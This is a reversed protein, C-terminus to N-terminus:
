KNEDVKKVAAPKLPGSKNLAERQEATLITEEITKRLKAQVASKAEAAAKEDGKVEALEKAAAAAMLFAQPKM